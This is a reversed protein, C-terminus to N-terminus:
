GLPETSIDMSGVPSLGHCQIKISAKHLFAM